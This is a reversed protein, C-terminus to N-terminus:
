YPQEIPRHPAHAHTRSSSRAHPRIRPAANPRRVITQASRRWGDRLLNEANTSHGDRTCGVGQVTFVPNLLNCECAFKGVARGYQRNVSQEKSCSDDYM